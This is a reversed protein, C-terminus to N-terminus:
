RFVEGTGANLYLRNARTMGGCYTFYVPGDHFTSKMWGGIEEFDARSCTGDAMLRTAAAAFAEKHAAYDDSGGILAYVGSAGAAPDPPRESSLYATSVWEAFRGDVIGNAEDCANNGSDVYDSVGNVCAADYPETIRAWGEREEHITVGEGLFQQGVIGCSSQPCTRRNLRDTTVWADVNAVGDSNGGTLTRFGLYGAGLLALIVFLLTGIGLPHAETTKSPDSASRRHCFVCPYNTIEKGCGRCRSTAM